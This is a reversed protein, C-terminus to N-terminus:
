LSVEQEDQLIFRVKRPDELYPWVLDTTAGLGSSPGASSRVIALEQLPTPPEVRDGAESDSSVEVIEIDRGVPSCEAELRAM